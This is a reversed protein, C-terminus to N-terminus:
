STRLNLWIYVLVGVLAILFPWLITGASNESRKCADPDLYQIASAIEAKTLHDIPRMRKHHKQM